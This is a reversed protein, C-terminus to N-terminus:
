WRWARPLRMNDHSRINQRPCSVPNQSGENLPLIIRLQVPPWVTGQAGVVGVWKGWGSLPLGEVCRGAEGLGLCCHTHAHSPSHAITFTRAHTDSHSRTHAHSQHILTHHTHTRSHTHQAGGEAGLGEARVGVLSGYSTSTSRGGRSRNQEWQGRLRRPSFESQDFPQPQPHQTEQPCPAPTLPAQPDPPPQPPLRLSPPSVSASPLLQPKSGQFSPPGQVPLVATRSSPPPFARPHQRYISNGEIQVYPVQVPPLSLRSLFRALLSKWFVM